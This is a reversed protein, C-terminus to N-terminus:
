NVIKLHAYNLINYFNYSDLETCILINGKYAICHSYKKYTIWVNIEM